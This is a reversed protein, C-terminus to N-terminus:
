NLDSYMSNCYEKRQCERDRTRCKRLFFAAVGDVGEEGTFGTAGVVGVM